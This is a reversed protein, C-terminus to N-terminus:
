RRVTKWKIGTGTVITDVRGYFIVLFNLYRTDVRLNIIEDAGSKEANKLAKAYGSDGFTILGLISHSAGEGRVPGIIEFDESSINYKTQSSNDSPYTVNAYFGGWGMGSPPISLPIGVCGTLLVLGVAMALLASARRM